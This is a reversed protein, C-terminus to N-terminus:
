GQNGNEAEKDMASGLLLIAQDMIKIAEKQTISGRHIVGDRAKGLFSKARKMLAMTEDKM